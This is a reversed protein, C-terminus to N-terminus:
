HRERYRVYWLALLIYWTVVFGGHFPPLTITSLPLLSFIYAIEIIARLLLETPAAVFSAFAPITVAVVSTLLTACLALPVLPVVIINAPLASLSLTGFVYAVWPSVVVLVATTMAIVSVSWAPVYAQMWKEIPQAVTMLAIVALVSLQFSVNHILLDPQMMLMCLVSFFLVDLGHSSKGVARAVVFLGGMLGARLAPPSLGVGSLVIVLASLSCVVRLGYPLRATFFWVLALVLAINSGSFVTIHSLGTVRFMSETEDDLSGSKGFVIGKGLGAAPEPLFLELGEELGQTGLASLHLFSHTLNGREVREITVRAHIGKARMLSDYPVIRGTDSQFPLFADVQGSFSITDGYVFHETLPAFAEIYMGNVDNEGMSSLKVEYVISRETVRGSSTVTGVFSCPSGCQLLEEQHTAYTEHNYTVLFLALAASLAIVVTNIIMARGESACCLRVGLAFAVCASLIAAHYGWQFIESFLIGCIFGLLLTRM